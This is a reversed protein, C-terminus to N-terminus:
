LAARIKVALAELEAPDAMGAKGHGAIEEGEVRPIIHFHIHFVTQGAPAGNFQAVFVGDPELARRVAAAVAKVALISKEAAEESLEFLNRAPEKPIVLVHGPAQPFVDMIALTHEDERVKVAPAEGRLIKAFISQDDYRGDLSM